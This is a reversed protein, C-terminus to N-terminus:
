AFIAKKRSVLLLVRFLRRYVFYPLREIVIVCSCCIINYINFVRILQWHKDWQDEAEERAAINFDIFDLDEGDLESRAAHYVTQTILRIDARTLSHFM